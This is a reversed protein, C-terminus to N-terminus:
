WGFGRLTSPGCESGCVIREIEEDFLSDDVKPTKVDNNRGWRTHNKKKGFMAVGFELWKIFMALKPDVAKIREYEGKTAFSGCECEGSMGLIDHVPTVALGNEHIYRYVFEDSEYFFPCGFYLNGDKVIPGPYNGMRRLSETKRVGSILVPNRGRRELAFRRMASYKLYGMVIRHMGPGPFGYELVLSVYVFAPKPERVYLQWGNKECMKKVFETTHRVGVNTQIHLVGDLLGAKDIYHVLGVSDKGGSCLVYFSRRQHERLLSEIVSDPTKEKSDFFKLVM